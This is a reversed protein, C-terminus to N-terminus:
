SPPVPTFSHHGSCLALVAQKGTGASAATSPPGASRYGASSPLAQAHSGGTGTVSDYSGRGSHCHSGPASNPFVTAGGNRLSPARSHLPVMGLTAPGSVDSGWGGSPHGWGLRESGAASHSGQACPMSELIVANQSHSEEVEWSHLTQGNATGCPVGAAHESLFHWPCRGSPEECSALSFPVLACWAM